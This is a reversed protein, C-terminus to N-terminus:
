GHRIHVRGDSDGDNARGIWVQRIRRMFFGRANEAYQIYTKIDRLSQPRSLGAFGM